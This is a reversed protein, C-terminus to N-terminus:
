KEFKRRNVLWRLGIRCLFLEYRTYTFDDDTHYTYGYSHKRETSGNLIICMNKLRHERHMREIDPLQRRDLMGERIIYLSLDAVRSTIIADAVVMAPVSDIIIYDYKERCQSILADLRVSLLQEAPNPPQLGAYICDINDHIDSKFIIQETTMEQDSMYKSIGNPNNRQGLQKSLRRRRLDLDILLVKNGSFAHVMALNTAIFTKGSHETSSTILYVKEDKFTNMFKMNARLMRFAESIEDRSNERVVVGRSHRKGTFAPIDGLYPITTFKEIDKRNRVSTDIVERLYIVILPLIAGFALMVMLIFSKRPAIPRMPGFASDIIRATNETIALNIANEERKNLLYLYLEEKIRQQRAISLFEQEQKPVTGIRAASKSQERQLNKLQIELSAINSDLSALIASKLAACHINLQEVIPNSASSNKLLKERRLVLENYEAIQTSISSTLASSGFGTVPILSYEKGPNSLYEKIFRSMELQSETDLLESQLRTSITFHREMEAEINVLNNRSKFEEIDRDAAGLEAGLIELRADIFDATAKAVERKDDIADRNYVNILTNIIDEARRAVSDNLSITIISSLKNAVASSMAKCYHTTVVDTRQKTVTISKGFYEQNLYPTKDIVIEGCPTTITAGYAASTSFDDFEIESDKPLTFDYLLYDDQELKVKFCCALDDSADIFAADIPSCLYLDVERLLKKTSYSTTLGLQEVTQRMLRRAQLVFLENDVNRRTTIGAIEGFMAMENAGSGKRSDKVMITAERHYIPPTSLIYLAGIGLFLVISIAVWYWKRLVLDIFDQISLTSIAPTAWQENHRDM